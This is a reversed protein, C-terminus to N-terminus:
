ARAEFQWCGIKIKMKNDLRSLILHYENLVESPVLHLLIRILEEQGEIRVVRPEHIIEYGRIGTDQLMKEVKIVSWCGPHSEKPINIKDLFGKLIAARTM